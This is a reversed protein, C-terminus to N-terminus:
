ISFPVSTPLWTELAVVQIRTTCALLRVRQGNVTHGLLVLSTTGPGAKGKVQGSPVSPDDGVPAYLM